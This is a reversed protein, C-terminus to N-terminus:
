VIEKSSTGTVISDVSGDKFRTVITDGKQVDKSSTIVKGNKISLTYGRRLVNEPSVMQVFQEVNKIFHLEDRLGERLSHQLSIHHQQLATTEEKLVQRLSHKLNVTIQQLGIMEKQLAQRFLHRVNVTLEQVTSFERQLFLSSRHVLAKSLTLLDSQEKLLFAETEEVLREQLEILETATKTVLAIFIEAVATPTKGRTHAVIDLVTIDREHGIGSVVPLPFQAVNSALHYSDFCSLDSSAGGGRIIAVASFLEKYQYVKELAAIISEESRDGQMVAPFLKTYFRFGGPNNDLQDKFDEYGAATPSSIVAIRNAPAEMVLEKNLSLVGDEELQKLVRQRNRAIEGLTFTPDIDVVTLSFGYLEHFDVTVRVLVNLGSAFAQGTEKEFFPALMRYVNAWIIGRARAIISQTHADKEVFELYCHGSQNGRVDSTEARLWYAGPLSDRIAGRVQRNLESLSFSSEM